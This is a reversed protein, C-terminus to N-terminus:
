YVRAPRAIEAKYARREALHHNLATKLSRLRGEAQDTPTVYGESVLYVIQYTREYVRQTQERWSESAEMWNAAIYKAIVTAPNM